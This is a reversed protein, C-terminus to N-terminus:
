LSIEGGRKLKNIYFKDKFVLNGAGYLRFVLARYPFFAHSLAILKQELFKSWYSYLFIIM